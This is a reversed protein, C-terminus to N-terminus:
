CKIMYWSQVDRVTGEMSDQTAYVRQQFIEAFEDVADRVGYVYDGNYYGGNRGNYYDHGAFLGGKKLKSWWAIMDKRVDPYTHAADLYIFDFHNDSFLDAIEHSFERKITYRGPFNKMREIVRRYNGDGQGQSWIDVSGWLDVLYLQSGQWRSLIMEAGQGDFVGVEAGYGVLSLNNLLIPLDARKVLPLYWVQGGKRQDMNQLAAGKEPLPVGACKVDREGFVDYITQEREFYHQKLINCALSVALPDISQKSM